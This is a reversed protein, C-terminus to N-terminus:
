SLHSKDKYREEARGKWEGDRHKLRRGWESGLTRVTGGRWVSGGRM